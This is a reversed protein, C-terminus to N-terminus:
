LLQCPNIAKSPRLHVQNQGIQKSGEFHLQGRSTNLAHLPFVTNYNLGLFVQTDEDLRSLRSPNQRLLSELPAVSFRTNTCKVHNYKAELNLFPASQWYDTRHNVKPHMTLSM